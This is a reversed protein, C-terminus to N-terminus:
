GASGGRIDCDSKRMFRDGSSLRCHVLESGPGPEPPAEATAKDWWKSVTQQVGDLIGDDRGASSAPADRSAEWETARQEQELRKGSHSSAQRMLEDGNDLEDLVFCGSCLLAIALVALVRM